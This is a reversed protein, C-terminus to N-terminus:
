TDDWVIRNLRAAWKSARQADGLRIYAEVLARLAAAHLPLHELGERELLALQVRAVRLLWDRPLYHNRMWLAMHAHFPSQTDDPLLRARRADSAAVDTCSACTCTFRFNKLKAHREAAPCDLYTYTVTLEEGAAIDRVAFLRYSFSPMYFQLTANPSCSHNARSINNCVATCVGDDGPRLGYIGMGNTALIGDVLGFGDDTHSNALAMLAARCDPRMRAVCLAYHRERENKAHQAQQAPTFHPACFLKTPNAAVFLPRESVILDGAKLARAAFLGLGKGPAPGVRFAPTAPQVLPQPFEPFTSM